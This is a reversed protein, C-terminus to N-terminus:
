LNNKLMGSFYGMLIILTILIVTKNKTYFKLIETKMTNTKIQNICPMKNGHKPYNLRM